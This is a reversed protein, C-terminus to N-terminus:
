VLFYKNLIKKRLLSTLLIFFSGPHKTKGLYEKYIAAPAKNNITVIQLNDVNAEIINEWFNPFKPMSKFM